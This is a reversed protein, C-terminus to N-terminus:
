EASLLSKICLLHKLEAREAVCEGLLYKSPDIQLVQTIYVKLKISELGAVCRLGNILTSASSTAVLFSLCEDVQTQCEKRKDQDDGFTVQWEMLIKNKTEEGLQEQEVFSEIVVDENLSNDNLYVFTPITVQIRPKCSMYQDALYQEIRDYDFVYQEHEGVDCSIIVPLLESEVDFTILHHRTVFRSNIEQSNTVLDASSEDNTAIQTIRDVVCNHENVLWSILEVSRAQKEDPLALSLPTNLTFAGHEQNAGRQHHHDSMFPLTQDFAKSFAEFLSLLEQKDKNNFKEIADRVTHVRAYERDVRRSFKSCMMKYWKLVHPLWRTPYLFKDHQLFLTLLPYKKHVNEDQKLFETKFWSYNVIHKVKETWMRSNIKNLPLYKQHDIQHSPSSTNLMDIINDMSQNHDSIISKRRTVAHKIHADVVQEFATMWQLHEQLSNFAMIPQKEQIYEIIFFLYMTINAPKIAQELYLWDVQVRDILDNVPNDSNMYESLESDDTVCVSRYLLLMNILLQVTAMAIHKTSDPGSQQSPHYSYGKQNLVFKNSLSTPHLLFQLLCSKDNLHLACSCIHAIAHLQTCRKTSVNIDIEFFDVCQEFSLLPDFLHKHQVLSENLMMACRQAINVSHADYLDQRAKQLFVLDFIALFLSKTFGSLNSQVSYKKASQKLHQIVGCISSRIVAHGEIKWLLQNYLIGYNVKVDGIKRRVFDDDFLLHQKCNTMFYDLNSDCTHITKTLLVNRLFSFSKDKILTNFQNVLMQSDDTDIQNYIILSLKTVVVRLLVMSHIQQLPDMVATSVWNLMRCDINKLMSCLRRNTLTLLFEDYLNMYIILTTCEIKENSVIQDM